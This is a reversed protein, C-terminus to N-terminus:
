SFHKSLVSRENRHCLNNVSFTLQLDTLATFDIYVITLNQTFYVDDNELKKSDLMLKFCVSGIEGKNNISKTLLM